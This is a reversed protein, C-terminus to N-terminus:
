LMADVRGLVTRNEPSAGAPSGVKPRFNPNDIRMCALALSFLEELVEFPKDEPMHPDVMNM